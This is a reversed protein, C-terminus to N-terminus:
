QGSDAVIPTLQITQSPPNLGTITATRLQGAHLTITVNKLLTDSSEDSNYVVLSYTDPPMSQYGPTTQSNVTAPVSGFQNVGVANVTFHTTLGTLSIGIDGQWTTDSPPPTFDAVDLADFLRFGANAAPSVSAATVMGGMLALGSQAADGGLIEVYIRSTSIFIPIAPVLPTASGAAALAFQHAGYGVGTFRVTDGFPVSSAAVTDDLLVDVPGAPLATNQVILTGPGQPAPKVQFDSVNCAATGLTAVTLTLAAIARVHTSAV